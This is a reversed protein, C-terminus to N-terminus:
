SVGTDAGHEAGTQKRISVRKCLRKRMWPESAPLIATAIRSARAAVDQRTLAGPCRNSTSALRTGHMPWFHYRKIYQALAALACTVYFLGQIYMRQYQYNVM